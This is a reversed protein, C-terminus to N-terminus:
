LLTSPILACHLFFLCRIACISQPKFFFFDGKLTPNSAFPISKPLIAQRIWLLQGFEYDFAWLGNNLSLFLWM